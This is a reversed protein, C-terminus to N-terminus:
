VNEEEETENESSIEAVAPSVEAEV